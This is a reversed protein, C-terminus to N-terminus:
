LKGPLRLIKHVFVHDFDMRRSHLSLYLKKYEMTNYLFLQKSLDKEAIIRAHLKKFHDLDNYFHKFWQVKAKDLTVLEKENLSEFIHRFPRIGSLDDPLENGARLFNNMLAIESHDVGSNGPPSKESIRSSIFASLMIVALFFFCILAIIKRKPQKHFRKDIKKLAVIFEEASSFRRIALPSCGKHYISRILRAEKPVFKEPLSPYESVDRRSWVCYLSKALAYCDRDSASVPNDVMFGATGSSGGAALTGFDALKPVSNIFVINEPKIDGHSLNHKHLHSTGKAIEIFIEIIQEFTLGNTNIRNALTDPIYESNPQDSINDALEMTYFVRGDPLIGVQFIQVLSQHSPLDRLITLASFEKDLWRPNVIKLALMKGTIDRVRFVSGAGGRDIGGTLELNDPLEIKFHLGNM